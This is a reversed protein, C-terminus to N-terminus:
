SQHTEFLRVSLTFMRHCPRCRLQVLDQEVDVSTLRIDEPHIQFCAHLDEMGEPSRENPGEGLGAVPADHPPSGLGSPLPRGVTMRHRMRCNVCYVGVTEPLGVLKLSLSLPHVSFCQQFFAGSKFVPM